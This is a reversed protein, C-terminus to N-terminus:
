EAARPVKLSVDEVMDKVKEHLAETRKMQKEPKNKM